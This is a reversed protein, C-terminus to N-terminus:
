VNGTWGITTARVVEQARGLKAKWDSFLKCM